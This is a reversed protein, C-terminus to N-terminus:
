RRSEDPERVPPLGRNKRDEAYKARQAARREEAAKKESESLRSGFTKTSTASNGASKKGPVIHFEDDDDEESSDQDDDYSDYSDDDDEFSDYSEDDDQQGVFM